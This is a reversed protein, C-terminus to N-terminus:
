KKKAKPTIVAKTKNNPKESAKAKATKQAANKAATQGVATKSAIAKKTTTATSQASSKLAAKATPKNSTNAKNTTSAPKQTKTNKSAVASTSKDAKAKLPAKATAKPETKKASTKSTSKAAVKNTDLDKKTLKASTKPKAADVAKKIPAVATAKSKIKNSTKVVKNASNPNKVSAATQEGSDNMPPNPLTALPASTNNKPAEVVATNHTIATNSSATLEAAATTQATKTQATMTPVIATEATNLQLDEATMALVTTDTTSIATPEVPLVQVRSPDSTVINSPLNKATINTNVENNVLIPLNAPMTYIPAPNNILNSLGDADNKHAVLGTNSEQNLILKPVSPIARITDDAQAIKTSNLNANSAYISANPDIPNNFGAGGSSTRVSSNLAQFPIEDNKNVRPVILTSSAQVYNHNSPISNLERLRYEDTNYKAAIDALAESSFTTYTTLSALQRSRDSFANRFDDARDAPVLIKSGLAAVIVPKKHAPNIRKFEEERMGALQAATSMDIDRTVMIAEHRARNNVNPLTIGFMAPNSVINKIAQLKPVYQRTETPMKIDQYGGAGGAAYSRKVAKGVNGEGWNYAALALHWDGFQNHLRELYDLAADTSAVVDNRQDAFRNQALSYDRGTAPMFQWLGSAKASSQASTVFASEVFPLLALESPMHRREVENMILYLFDGSRETMRGVYDARSSYYNEKALVEDNNLDPMGYNDRIRQWIDNSSSHIPKVSSTSHQNPATACATVFLISACILANKTAHKFDFHAAKALIRLM